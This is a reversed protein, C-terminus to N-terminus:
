IPSLAPQSRDLAHLRARGPRLPRDGDRGPAGRRVRGRGHAQRHRALSGPLPASGERRQASSSRSPRPTRSRRAAERRVGRRGRRDKGLARALPRRPAAVRLGEGGPIPGDRRQRRDHLGRDAAAGRNKEQIRLDVIADDAFVARPELTELDLAGEEHAASACRRPSRTRARPATRRCAPADGGGERCRGRRGAVSSATTRWSRRTACRPATSTPPRSRATPPRVIMEIVM